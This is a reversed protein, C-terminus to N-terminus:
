RTSAVDPVDWPARACYYVGAPQFGSRAGLKHSLTVHGGRFSSGSACQRKRRTAIADCM